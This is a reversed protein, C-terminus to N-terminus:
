GKFFSISRLEPLLVDQVWIRVNNRDTGYLNGIEINISPPQSETDSKRIGSKLPAIDRSESPESLMTKPIVLEGAHLMALQDKKILGGESLGAIFSRATGYLAYGALIEPFDKIASLGGTIISNAIANVKAVLLKAATYDLLSLAINKLMAKMGHEQGKIGAILGEGVASGLNQMLFATQEVKKQTDSAIRSLMKDHLGQLRGLEEESSLGAQRMMAIQSEIKLVFAEPDQTTKAEEALLSYEKRFSEEREAKDKLMGHKRIEVEAKMADLQYKESQKYYDRLLALHGSVETQWIEEKKRSTQEETSLNMFQLKAREESIKYQNQLEKVAEEDFYTSSVSTKMSDEVPSLKELRSSIGSLVGYLKVANSAADSFSSSWRSGQRNLDNFISSTADLLSSTKSIATGTSEWADSLAEAPASTSESLSLINAFLDAVPKASSSIGSLENSWMSLDKRTKEISQIVDKNSNALSNFCATGKNELERFDQKMADLIERLNKVGSLLDLSNFDAM